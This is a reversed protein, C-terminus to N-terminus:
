PNRFGHDFFTDIGHGHSRDSSQCRFINLFESVWISPNESSSILFDQFLWVSNKSFNLVAESKAISIIRLIGQFSNQSEIIYIEFCNRIIQCCIPADDRILM